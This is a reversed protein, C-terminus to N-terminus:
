SNSGVTTDVAPRAPEPRRRGAFAAAGLGLGILGAVLGAGGLWRATDDSAAGDGDGDSAPAAAAAHDDAPAADDDAGPPLAATLAFSPVPHEPEDAGAPQPQNWNVVSGDSYTQVAPFSLEKVGTPLPGGSLAFEQFQGPGVEHGKLATWTVKTPAETVTAGELDVPKPLKSKTVAVTWGDIQQASVFVLPTDTPLAIELKTTSATDSETPVRFTIKTFAGGATSEPIVRVHAQASAAGAFTAVALAAVAAGTRLVLRGPRPARSPMVVRSSM